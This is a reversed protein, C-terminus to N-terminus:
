QRLSEMVAHLSPLALDKKSVIPDGEYPWEIALLPDDYRVGLEDSLEYFRTCKYAFEAFESLVYFGHAFGEPVYLQSRNESSLTLGFWKGLTPSGKRLDVAVDYVEGSLVRVLKGQPNNVQFHMGRLVGKKSKSHNDQVFGVDIGNARFDRENYTEMFFGREDGYLAPEVIILGDFDTKTFKFEGM